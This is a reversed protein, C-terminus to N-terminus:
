GGKKKYSRLSLEKIVCAKPASGVLRKFVKSFYLPDRFGCFRSIESVNRMGDHILKKAHEIRLNTLYSSFGIKVTKKFHESLYKSSYGFQEAVSYLSLHPDTFHEDVYCKIQLIFSVNGEEETESESACVDAFTYLLVAESM